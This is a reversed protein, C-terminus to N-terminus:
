RMTLPLYLKEQPPTPPAGGWFGGRLLYSSSAMSGADPQAITGHLQYGASASSGGGSDVTWWPISFALPRALASGAMLLALLLFLVLLLKMRM